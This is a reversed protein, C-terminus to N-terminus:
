HRTGCRRRWPSRRARWRARHRRPRDDDAPRGPLRDRGGRGARRRGRRRHRGALRRAAGSGYHEAVAAATSEVGIAALLQDAMGRVPAGGVIPSLGVVPVGAEALAERIGPVGLITGVSVVPNSPPVLVLDAEAIAELVGPRPSPRSPASRSSPTRRCRRRAAPGLVGPLARGQPREATRTTSRRRPDRGPRRDDAAAARGAALPRVAGRHGRQAPLRRRADPHARPPHRPRPRRPRVLDAGVGYAALEEKVHWTEDTRGWGREDDIGGGLTYM